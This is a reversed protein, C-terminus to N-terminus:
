IALNGSVALHALAAVHRCSHQLLQAQANLIHTATILCIQKVLPRLSSAKGIGHVIANAINSLSAAAACSDAAAAAAIPLLSLSRFFARRRIPREEGLQSRRM